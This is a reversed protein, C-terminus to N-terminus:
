RWQAVDSPCVAGVVVGGADELLGAMALGRGCGAARLGCGAARLGGACDAQAIVAM